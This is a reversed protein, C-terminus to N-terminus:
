KNVFSTYDGTFKHKMYPRRETNSVSGSKMAIRYFENEEKSCMFGAPTEDVSKYIDYLDIGEILDNATDLYSMCAKSPNNGFEVGHYDCRDGNMKDWLDDGLIGHGYTM